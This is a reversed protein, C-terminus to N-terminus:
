LWMAEEEKGMQAAQTHTPTSGCNFDNHDGGGKAHTSSLLLTLRGGEVNPWFWPRRMCVSGGPSLAHPLAAASM